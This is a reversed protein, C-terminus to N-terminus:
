CNKNKTTVKVANNYITQCHILVVFYGGLSMPLYSYNFQDHDGIHIINYVSKGILDDQFFFIM